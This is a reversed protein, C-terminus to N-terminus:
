RFMNVAPIIYKHKQLYYLPKQDRDEELQNNTCSIFCCHKKIASKSYGIPYLTVVKGDIVIQNLKLSSDSFNCLKVNKIPSVPALQLM